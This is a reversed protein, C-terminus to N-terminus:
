HRVNRPNFRTQLTDVLINLSLVLTSLLLSAALFNNFEGIMVEQSSEALMMGWSVHIESGLGIFSLLVEAKLAGVFVIASQILLLPAANPILHRYAITWENVGAMRAAAIFDLANLRMVEARVLRVTSSWFALILAVELGGAYEKFAYAITIALLYLPIVDLVAAWWMVSSDVLSGPRVGAFVGLLTGLLLTGLTVWFGVTFSNHTSIMARAFIDQGVMNTGWPHISSSEAWSDETIVSWEEGQWGLAVALVILLYVLLILISLLALPHYRWFRNRLSFQQSVSHKM